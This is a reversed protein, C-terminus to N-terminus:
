AWYRYGKIWLCTNQKTSSFKGLTGGLPKQYSSSKDTRTHKTRRSVSQSRIHATRIMLICNFDILSQREGTPSTCIHRICTSILFTYKRGIVGRHLPFDELMCQSPFVICSKEGNRCFLRTKLNNGTINGRLPILRNNYKTWSGILPSLAEADSPDASM